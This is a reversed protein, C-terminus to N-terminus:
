GQIMGAAVTNNTLEDILIFSGTARNKSYPDFCIPKLTRIEVEAIDNLNLREASTKDMTKMDRVWRIGDVLAKVEGTGLKLLYKKRLALPEKVMWCVRATFQNATRPENGPYVLMDGRSIDIEDNLRITVSLPPVAADMEGDFSDIAKITSAAGSPLVLVKQGKKAVGSVVKGAFGRYDLNPRLVLQVPFRFDELNRDRSIEVSELYELLAKGKYWPTAASKVTINDGKLASVPIFELNALSPATPDEAVLQSFFETYDKKIAEFKAESFEVLDMKNVAVVLHPIRLLKAIYGHRKSQVMVGNRADILIIALDATSAGTVMNRTYQEHGPTDAIIFKRKATVFYRYAVDITIGQEREASLGDTILAFDIDEGGKKETTRRIAELQDEFVGKSDYLLRGILTSKGDDVSGATTFRLLDMKEYDLLTKTELTM